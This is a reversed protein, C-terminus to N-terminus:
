DEKKDEPKDETSKKVKQGMNVITDIVVAVAIVCAGIQGVLDLWAPLDFKFLVKGYFWICEVVCLVFLSMGLNNLRVGNIMDKIYFFLAVPTFYLVLTTVRFAAEVLTSIIM